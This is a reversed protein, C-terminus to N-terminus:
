PVRSSGVASQTMAAPVGAHVNVQQVGEGNRGIIRM